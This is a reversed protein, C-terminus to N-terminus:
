FLIAKPQELQKKTDKLMESISLLPRDNVSTNNSGGAVYDYILQRVEKQIATAM